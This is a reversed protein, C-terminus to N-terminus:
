NQELKDPYLLSDWLTVESLQLDYDAKNLSYLGADHVYAAYFVTARALVLSPFYTLLYNTTLSGSATSTAYGVNTSVFYPLKQRVTLTLAVTTTPVPFLFLSPGSCYADYGSKSNVPLTKGAYESDTFRLEQKRQLELFSNYDVLRVIGTSTKIDEISSITLNTSLASFEVSTTSSPYTYAVSVLGHKFKKLELSECAMNIARVAEELSDEEVTQVLDYFATVAETITM